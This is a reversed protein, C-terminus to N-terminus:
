ENKEQSQFRIMAKLQDRLWAVEEPTLNALVESFELYHDAM